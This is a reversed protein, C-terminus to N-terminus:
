AVECYIMDFNKDQTLILENNKAMELVALFTVIIYEKTLVDFLEIFSVKKKDKLISKIMARRESVSMEKTTIKTTLPEREKQDILFKQFAKLLDEISLEKETYLKEETYEQLSSPTKTYIEKRLLELDRFTETMDKYKQYEILRNILQERPDEEDLDEEDAYKPLLMKSKIELLESAMVLYESAIDLNIAEMKNIYMLYQNTIDEINIDYINIKAEKILHLLLDLPGEFENIKVEYEL